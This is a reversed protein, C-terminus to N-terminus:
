FNRDTVAFSPLGSLERGAGSFIGFPHLVENREDL